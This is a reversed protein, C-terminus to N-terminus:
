DEKDIKRIESLPLDVTLSLNLQHLQVAVRKKGKFTVLTAKIGILPGATIEIEDGESFDEHSILVNLEHERMMRKIVDIQDDPIIAAQGEFRVYTVVGQTRLVRDYDRRDIHVFIYGPILPTEVWKKRDSWQRLKKQLPLYAEISQFELELLVKKEARSKTYVAYWHKILTTM